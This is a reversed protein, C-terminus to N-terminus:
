SLDGKEKQKREEADLRASRRTELYLWGTLAACLASLGAGIYFFLAFAKAFSYGLYRRSFTILWAAIPGGAAAIFVSDYMFIFLVGINAVGVADVGVSATLGQTYYYIYMHM